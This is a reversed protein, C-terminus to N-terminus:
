RRGRAQLAAHAANQAVKLKKLYTSKAEPARGISFGALTPDMARILAYVSQPKRNLAAAIDQITPNRNERKRFDAAYDTILTRYTIDKPQAM